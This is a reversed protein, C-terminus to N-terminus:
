WIFRKWGHNRGYPAPNFEYYVRFYNYIWEIEVIRETIDTLVFKAFTRNKNGRQTIAKNFLQVFKKFHPNLFAESPVESFLDMEKPIAPLIDIEEEGTSTEICTTMVRYRPSNQNDKVRGDNAQEEQVDYLAKYDFNKM